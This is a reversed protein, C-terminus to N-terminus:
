PNKATQLTLSKGNWNMIVTLTSTSSGYDGAATCNSTSLCAISVANTLLSGAPQPFAKSTWSSGNWQTALTGVTLCSTTSLCSVDYLTSGITQTGSPTPRITWSKGNWVEGLSRFAFSSTLSDGVANCFKTSVCSVGLLSNGVVGSPNPPLSMAWKSGNWIESLLPQSSGKECDGVAMPGRSLVVGVELTESLEDFGVL